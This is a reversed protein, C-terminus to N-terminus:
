ILGPIFEVLNPSHLAPAQGVFSNNIEPVSPPRFHGTDIQHREQLIAGEANTNDTTFGEQQHQHRSLAETKIGEANM